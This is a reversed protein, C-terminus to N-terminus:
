VRPVSQAAHLDAHARTRQEPNGGRDAIQSMDFPGVDLDQLNQATRGTRKVMM